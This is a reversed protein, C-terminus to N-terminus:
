KTKNSENNIVRFLRNVNITKWYGYDEILHTRVLLYLHNYNQSDIANNHSHDNWIFKLVKNWVEVFDDKNQEEITKFIDDPLAYLCTVNHKKEAKQWRNHTECYFKKLPHFVNDMMYQESSHFNEYISKYIKEPLVNFQAEIKEVINDSMILRWQIMLWIMINM